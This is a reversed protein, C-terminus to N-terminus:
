ALKLLLFAAVLVIVSLVVGASTRRRRRACDWAQWRAVVDFVELNAGAPPPEVFDMQVGQRVWVAPDIKRNWAAILWDRPSFVVVHQIHGALLDREADDVDRLPYWRAVDLHRQTVYDRVADAEPGDPDCVVAIPLPAPSM